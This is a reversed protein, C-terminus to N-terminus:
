KPGDKLAAFHLRLCSLCFTQGCDSCRYALTDDENAWVTRHRALHLMKLCGVEELGIGACPVEARERAQKLEAEAAEARAQWTIGDVVGGAAEELAAWARTKM